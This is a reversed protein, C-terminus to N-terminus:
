WELTGTGPPNMEEWTLVDGSEGKEPPIVALFIASGEKTGVAVLIGRLTRSQNTDMSDQGRDTDQATIQLAAMVPHRVDTDLM